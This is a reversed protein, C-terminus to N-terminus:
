FCPMTKTSTELFWGGFATCKEGSPPSVQERLGELNKWRFPYLTCPAQPPVPLNQACGIGGTPRLYCYGHSSYNWQAWALFFFFFKLFFSIHMNKLSLLFCINNVGSCFIPNFFCGLFCSSAQSITSLVNIQFDKIPCTMHGRQAETDLKSIMLDLVENYLQDSSLPLSTTRWAM